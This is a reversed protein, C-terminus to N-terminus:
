NDISDRNLVERYFDRTAGLGDYAANANEPAVAPDGEGRVLTVNVNWTNGDVYIQRDGKGPRPATLTSLNAVSANRREQRQALSALATRQAPEPDLGLQRANRAIHDIIHNPIYFCQPAAM